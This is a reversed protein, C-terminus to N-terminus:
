GDCHGIWCVRYVVCAILVLENTSKDFPQLRCAFLLTFFYSILVLLCVVSISITALAFPDGLINDMSMTRMGGARRGGKMEMGNM